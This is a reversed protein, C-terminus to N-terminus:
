TRELYSMVAAHRATGAAVLGNQKPDNRGFIMEHGQEDSIKGGAETVLLAGPAIDWDHKPGFSLVIDVESGALMALRTIQPTHSMNVPEIGSGELKQRAQSRAALRARNLDPADSMHLTEGNCTAGKGREALYLLHRTPQIVGAVIPKGNECLCLGICWEHRMDAFSRTGDIPDLIWCRQRTLRAPDDPGEESLWGYDPRASTLMEHLADNVALDGATVLSGDPKQQKEVDSRYFQMAVASARTLAAKLLDVDQL